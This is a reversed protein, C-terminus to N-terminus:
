GTEVEHGASPEKWPMVLTAQGQPGWAVRLDRNDAHARWGHMGADYDAWVLAARVRAPRRPSVSEDWDLVDLVACGGLVAWGAAAVQRAWTRRVSLQILPPGGYEAKYTFFMGPTDDTTWSEVLAKPVEPVRSSDHGARERGAKFAPEPAPREAYGMMEHDRAFGARVAGVVAEGIWERAEGVRMSDM